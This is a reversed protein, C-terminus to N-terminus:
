DKKSTDVSEWYRRLAQEASSSTTWSFVHHVLDGFPPASGRGRSPLEGTTLAWDVALYAILRLEDNGAPRGGRRAKPENGRAVGMIVPEFRPSSRKDKARSRGPIIKGGESITALLRSILRSSPAQRSWSVINCNTKRLMARPWLARARRILYAQSASPLQELRSRIVGIQPDPADALRWISRLSDHQLRFPTDGATESCWITITSFVADAFQHETKLNHKTSKRLCGIIWLRHEVTLIIAM